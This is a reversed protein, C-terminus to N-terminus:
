PNRQTVHPCLCSLSLPFPFSYFGSGQWGPVRRSLSVHCWGEARRGWATAVFVSPVALAYVVDLPASGAGATGAAVALVGVQEVSLLVYVACVAARGFQSARVRPFLQECFALQVSALVVSLHLWLTARSVAGHIVGSRLASELRLFSVGGIFAFPAAGRLLPLAGTSKITGSTIKTLMNLAKNLHWAGPAAGSAAGAMGGHRQPSAVVRRTAETPGGKAQARERRQPLHL